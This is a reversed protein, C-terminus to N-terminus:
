VYSWCNYPVVARGIQAFCYGYFMNRCGVKSSGNNDEENYSVLKRLLRTVVTCLLPLKNALPHNDHDPRKGPVEEEM